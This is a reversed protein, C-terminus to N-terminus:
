KQYSCTYLYQKPKEDGHEALWLKHVAQFLEWDKKTDEKIIMQWGVGQIDGKKGLTRTKANLWLIAVGDVVIGMNAFAMREYAALQLWYSNAIVSSTKIDMLYKKGNITCIRDITGAFELMDCVINQEILEHAPNHTTSFDIYREFMGWESLSFLPNNNNDMLNVQECNDYRETLVHVTSGRKGAADRVKDANEGQEKFWQILHYPIPYSSLITTVSPFWKGAENQYYRGDSFTLQNNKTSVLNLM